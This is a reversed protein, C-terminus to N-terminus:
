RKNLFFILLIALHVFYMEHYTDQQKIPWTHPQHIYGEKIPSFFVVSFSVFQKPSLSLSEVLTADGICSKGINQPNCFIAHTHNHFTSYHQVGLSRSFSPVQGLTTPDCRSVLKTEALQKKPPLRPPNQGPATVDCPPEEHTLIVDDSRYAHRRKKPPLFLSIEMRRWAGSCWVPRFRKAPTLSLTSTHRHAWM